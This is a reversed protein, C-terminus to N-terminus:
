HKRHGRSCNHNKWKGLLANEILPGTALHEVASKHDTMLQHLVEERSVNKFKAEIEILVDLISTRLKHDEFIRNMSVDHKLAKLETAVVSVADAYDGDVYEEGGSQLFSVAEDLTM